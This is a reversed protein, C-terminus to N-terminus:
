KKRGAGEKRGRERMEREEKELELGFIHHWMDFDQADERERKCMWDIVLDQKNWWSFSM